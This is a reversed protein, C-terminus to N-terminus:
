VTDSHLIILNKAVEAIKLKETIAMNRLKKYAQDESVGTQQMLIGKARDIIKRDSLARQTEVLKVKLEQMEEFRAIALSFISKLREPRFGDVILASVGSNITEKTLQDTSKGAFMVIPCPYVVSVKRVQDLVYGDPVKVSFVILDPFAAQSLTCIDDRTGVKTILSYGAAEIGNGIVLAERQDDGIQLVRKVMNRSQQFWIINMRDQILGPAARDLVDGLEGKNGCLWRQRTRSRTM